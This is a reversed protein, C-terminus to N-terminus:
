EPCAKDGGRRRGRPPSPPAAAGSPHAQRSAGPLRAPCFGLGLARGAPVRWAAPLLPRGLLRQHPCRPRIPVSFHRQFDFKIQPDSQPAIKKGRTLCKQEM